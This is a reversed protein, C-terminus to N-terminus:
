AAPGEGPPVRDRQWYVERGGEARCLVRGLVFLLDSLRNLYALTAGNVPTERHLHVLAREARRCVARALHAWAAGPSGGPLIFEELPPLTANWADLRNELWAPDGPALMGGAPLSLEGGVRFLDNQIRELVQDVEPPLHRTRLLGICCNLEDVEGIAAIRAADKPVRGGDGLGTEGADGTRTYIRTLRKGV